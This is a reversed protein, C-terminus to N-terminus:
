GKPRTGTGPNDGTTGSGPTAAGKPNTTAGVGIGVGGSVGTSPSDGATGTSPTRADKPNTETGSVGSRSPDNPAQSEKDTRIGGGTVGTGGPATQAYAASVALLLATSIGILTKM